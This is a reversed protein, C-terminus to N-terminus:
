VVEGRTKCTWITLSDLDRGLQNVLGTFESDTSGIIRIFAEPSYRMADLLNLEMMATETDSM